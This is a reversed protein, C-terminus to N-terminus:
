MKVFNSEEISYPLTEVNVCRIKLGEFCHQLKKMYFMFM